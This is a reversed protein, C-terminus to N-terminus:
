NTKDFIEENLRQIEIFNFIFYFISYFLIIMTASFIDIDFNIFERELISIRQIGAEAAFREFIFLLTSLTFYYIYSNRVKKINGRIIRIYDHNKVGALNINVVIGFGISFMIGLVSYITNMFYEGSISPLWNSLVIAGLVVVIDRASKIM